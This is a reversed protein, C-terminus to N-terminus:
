PVRSKAGIPVGRQLKILLSLAEVGRDCRAACPHITLAECLVITTEIMLAAGMTRAV